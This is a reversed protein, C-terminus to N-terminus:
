RAKAQLKYIKKPPSAESANPPEALAAWIFGMLERAVAVVTKQSPKRHEEMRRWRAYLRRMAKDATEITRPSQQARRENLKKGVRPAHRYNWAAEVLVRRVHANGAKTISGQQRKGASSYESPTLGVFAMLQPASEFREFGHLETVLVMATTTDIGRFCRLKAVPTEYPATKSLAEIKADLAKIQEAFHKLVAVYHDFTFRDAEHEFTLEDLWEWFARTWRSKGAYTKNRRTLFKNLRHKAATESEKAQQRARCLDRVAEDEESPPHVETLLGGRFLDALKKADRRDTKVRDGPMSPIKSPAIVCTEVGLKELQRMLGFGLPGAEYCARLQSSSKKRLSRVFRRLSQETNALEVIEADKRRPYLIAAVITEKHADLGIFTTSTSMVPEQRM